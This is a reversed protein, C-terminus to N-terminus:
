VSSYYEARGIHYYLPSEVISCHQEAPRSIGIAPGITRPGIRLIVNGKQSPLQM